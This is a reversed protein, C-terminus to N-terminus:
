FFIWTQFRFLTGSAGATFGTRDQQAPSDEIYAVDGTFRWNREQMVYWNVGAGLESGNGFPGFVASGRGYLEVTQPVIFAGAQVFFGHDFLESENIPGNGEISTLWRFFYEGSLSYGRYKVGAHLALLSIDFQNVTVGPALAGPEVIRTGDSLRVATQEPGPEGTPDPGHRNFTFAHGIRVVPSEHDELDSFGDGFSGLPEWWLMESYVFHADRESLDLGITNFGNGVLVHYHCGPIPEGEAWIGTTISPRFFTTALSREAGLTFRASELWEWTGPVKGLGYAVNFGPSFPHRIWALLLQIQREAVTNYDINTYFEVLPDIAYGSFVLRGRNIDFDNRGPTPVTQGASNVVSSQQNAFGTYRFQDHFNVKLEFPTRYPDLPRLIWGDDYVVGHTAPTFEITDSPSSFGPPCVIDNGVAVGSDSPVVEIPFQPTAPNPGDTDLAAANPEPPNAALEQAASRDWVASLLILSWVAVASHAMQRM